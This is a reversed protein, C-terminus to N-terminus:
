ATPAPAPLHLRSQLPARLLDALADQDTFCVHCSLCARDGRDSVFPGDIDATQHGAAPHRCWRCDNM